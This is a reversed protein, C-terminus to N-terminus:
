TIPSQITLGVSNQDGILKSTFSVSGNVIRINGKAMYHISGIIIIYCAQTLKSAFIGRRLMGM